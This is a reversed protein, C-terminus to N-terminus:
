HTVEWFTVSTIVGNSIYLM